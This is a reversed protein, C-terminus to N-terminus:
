PSKTELSKLFAIRERPPPHSFYFKSYVPHPTVTSSNDRILKLLASILDKAHAHTAAFEDAEFENKRSFWSSIPTLFYTFFPVTLTFLLLQMYKETTKIGFSQVLIQNKVALSLIYLGVFLGATSIVISKLIHKRKLHGLEHALVAIVENDELTELLTDFFVIRRNKGFGTFYANGHSSRISANMTYFDKFVLKCSDLLTAIKASLKEDDLPKFKNFLPAIFKPYAWIMIFQFAVIFAWTILWWNDGTKYLFFLIAYLLPVGIALGLFFQKIHDIIFIKPTMKNFGFKEELEFNFYWDFPLSIVGNIINFALLFIVGVSLPGLGISEISQALLDLLGSFLWAILIVQNFVLQGLSFRAKALSYTQAKEHQEQNIVSSFEAPVKVNEQVSKINLGILTLKTLVTMIFLIIFIQLFM